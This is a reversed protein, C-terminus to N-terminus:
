PQEDEEGTTWRVPTGLRRNAYPAVWADLQSRWRLAFVGGDARALHTVASAALRTRRRASGAGLPREWLEVGGEVALAYLVHDAELLVAAREGPLGLRPEDLLTRAESGDAAVLTLRAGVDGVVSRVVALRSADSSWALASVHERPSLTLVGRGDDGELSGVRLEGEVVWAVRARDPSPWGGSLAGARVRRWAGGGGGAGGDHVWHGGLGTRDTGAAFLSREGLFAIHSAHVDAPVAVGSPEGGAVARTWLGSTDLAALRAGDPSLAFARVVNDSPTETVSELTIPPEPGADAIESGADAPAVAADTSAVVRPAARPWLFYAAAAGGGLVLVGILGLVIPARRAPVHEPAPVAAIPASVGRPGGAATGSQPAVGVTPALWPAVDTSPLAEGRTWRELDEALAAATQYRESPDKRLCRLVIRELGPPYGPRAESPPRPEFHLIAANRDMPTKGPFPLSRTTIQHLIVGLAFVDARGDLSAEGRVQEPPMYGPTGLITGVRTELATEEEGRQEEGLPKALGFDLVKVRDGPGIMVNGPKLDRHVIAHRHAHDIANAIDIAIRAARADDIVERQALEGLSEGECLEMAFWVDGESEGAGYAAAINPHSLVGLARAERLFRKRLDSHSSVEPALVKLAVERDLSTDRAVYVVGMGGRGLVREVRYPGLQKGLRPDGESM